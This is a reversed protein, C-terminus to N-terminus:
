EVVRVFKTSAFNRQGDFCFAMVFIQLATEIGDARFMM